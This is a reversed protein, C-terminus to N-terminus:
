IDFSEDKRAHKNYSNAQEGAMRTNVNKTNKKTDQTDSQNWWFM